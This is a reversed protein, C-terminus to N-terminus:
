TTMATLGIKACSPTAWMAVLKRAKAMFGVFLGGGDPQSSPPVTKGDKNKVLAVKAPPNDPADVASGEEIVLQVLESEPSKPAATSM